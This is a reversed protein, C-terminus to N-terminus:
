SLVWIVVLMTNHSDNVNEIDDFLLKLIKRYDIFVKCYHRLGCKICKYEHNHHHSLRVLLHVLLFYNCFHKNTILVAVPLHHVYEPALHWSTGTCQHLHCFWEIRFCNATFTSPESPLVKTTVTVTVILLTALSTPIQSHSWHPLCEIIVHFNKPKGRGDVYKGYRSCQTDRKTSGGGITSTMLLHGWSPVFHSIIGASKGYWFKTLILPDWFKATWLLVDM